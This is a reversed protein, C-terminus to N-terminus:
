VLLESFGASIRIQETNAGEPHGLSIQRAMIGFCAHPGYTQLNKPQDRKIASVAIRECMVDISLTVVIAFVESVGHTSRQGIKPRSCFPERQIVIALFIRATWTELCPIHTNKYSLLM